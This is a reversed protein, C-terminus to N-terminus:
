INVVIRSKKLFDLLVTPSHTPQRFYLIGMVTTLTRVILCGRYQITLGTLLGVRVENELKSTIQFMKFADDSAGSYM